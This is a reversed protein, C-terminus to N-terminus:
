AGAPSPADSFLSRLWAWVRALFGPPPEPAPPPPAPGTVALDDFTGGDNRSGFGVRGSPFTPDSVAAVQEGARFVRIAAGQREVRIPYMEGAVIPAAIDALETRVGDVVAFVGSTNADNGESFGAFYYNAPDQYGFVISFDNFRSDTPTSSASASLTFDGTVVTSHVALNANPVSEGEDDPASLTYRGSAVAWAGAIPVFDVATATFDEDILRPGPPAAAAAPTPTVANSVASPPGAGARNTAVVTFRYTTGNTLGTVTASRAVGPASATAGGPSATVTYGSIPAGGDAPAVWSVVAGGDAPAVVVGSPIGPPAQAAATGPALVVTLAALVVVVATHPYWRRGPM